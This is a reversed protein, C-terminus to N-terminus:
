EFGRTCFGDLVTFLTLIRFRREDIFFHNTLFLFFPLFSFYDGPKAM